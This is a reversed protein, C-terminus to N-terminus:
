KENKVRLLRVGWVIGTAAVLRPITIWGASVGIAVFLLTDELLSHCVAIHHNLLDNNERNFGDKEAHEFMIAASYGLGLVNAVLWLFATDKPLGMLGLLPALLKALIKLVGLKELTKQLIMLATVFFIVKLSLYLTNLGWHKLESLFPSQALQPLASVPFHPIASAHFHPHPSPPLLYNLVLAGIISTLLRLLLMRPASSGTKKLILVEVILNHSVLCMFALITIERPTLALTTIVAIASYINLFISTLFVLASQGSLGLYQFLPNLVDSFKALWGSYQLLLVGFSVPIM